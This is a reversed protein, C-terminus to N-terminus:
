SRGKQKAGHQVQSKHGIEANFLDIDNILANIACQHMTPKGNRAQIM